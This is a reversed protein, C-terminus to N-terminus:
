GFGRVWWVRTLASFAWFLVRTHHGLRQWRRGLYRGSKQNFLWWFKESVLIYSEVGFFSWDSFM